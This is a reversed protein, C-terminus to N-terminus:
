NSSRHVVDGSSNQLHARVFWQFLELDALQGILVDESVPDLDALMSRAARHDGIVGSYVDDLAALHRVTPERGLAYDDWTRNEVVKGPTGMPEAGLTAIREALVDTMDRVKDVQPDLMEHVAIFNMGVVNWHIHKLTLQLDILSTLRQQLATTIETSQDQNLGNITTTNINAINSMQTGKSASFSLQHGEHALLARQERSSVEFKCRGSVDIHPAGRCPTGTQGHLVILVLVILVLVILVLAILVVAILVVAILVVAILVVAFLVAV